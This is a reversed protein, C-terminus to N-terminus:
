AARPARSIGNLAAALEAHNFPKVLSTASAASPFTADPADTLVIIPKSGATAAFHDFFSTNANDCWTREDALIVDPEFRRALACAADGDAAEAVNSLGLSTLLGRIISRTCDSQDVILVKM